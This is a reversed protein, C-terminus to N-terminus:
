VLVQQLSTRMKNKRAKPQLRSGLMKWTWSGRTLAQFAQGSEKKQNNLSLAGPIKLLTSIIESSKM